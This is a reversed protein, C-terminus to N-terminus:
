GSAGLPDFGSDSDIGIHDTGRHLRYSRYRSDYVTRTFKTRPNKRSVM